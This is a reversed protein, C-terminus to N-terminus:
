TYSAKNSRKLLKYIDKRSGILLVYVVKEKEKIQYLIRHEGGATTVPFSRTNDYGKLLKGNKPYKSLQEFARTYKEIISKDLLTLQKAVRQSGHVQWM